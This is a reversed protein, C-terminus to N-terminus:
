DERALLLLHLLAGLAFVLVGEELIGFASVAAFGAFHVTNDRWFGRARASGARGALWGLGIALVPIAITAFVSAPEHVALLLVLGALVLALDGTGIRPSISALRTKAQGTALHRRMRAFAEGFDRAFLGMTAVALAGTAYGLGALVGALLLLVLATAFAAPVAITMRRPGFRRAFAVALARGPESLGPQPLSRAMMEGSIRDLADSEGALVWQDDELFGAPVERCETRAQLALRLLLSMTEGDPPLAALAQVHRGEMVALGAWHRDRDIREFDAPHDVSLPHAAGLTAIGQRLAADSCVLARAAEPAIVLGDLLVLVEDEARVLGPLPIHGRVAHFSLGVAEVEHQRAIVEAGTTECLCVIRQCGLQIALDVQRSLVSHGALMM